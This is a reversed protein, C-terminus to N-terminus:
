TQKQSRKLHYRGEGKQTYYAPVLKREPSSHVNLVEQSMPSPFGGVRGPRSHQSRRSTERM